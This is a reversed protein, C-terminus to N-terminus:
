SNKINKLLYLEPPYFVYYPRRERIPSMMSSGLWELHKGYFDRMNWTELIAQFMDKALFLEDSCWKLFPYYSFYCKFFQLSKLWEKLTWFHTEENGISRIFLTKSSALTITIWDENSCIVKTTIGLFTLNIWENFFFCNLSKNNKPIKRMKLKGVM